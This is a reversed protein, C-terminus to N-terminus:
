QLSLRIQARAEEEQGGRALSFIRDAADWFQAVSNGLYRRQEPTRRAVAAEDELRLANELDGRLRQFQASWATLPYPTEGDLMDRMALGLLNLDNQIRLLQLSAKRSRDGLQTQLEGLGSIQRTIYWSYAVVAALTVILGLLLGLTPARGSLPARTVSRTYSFA